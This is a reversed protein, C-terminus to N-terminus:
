ENSAYACRNEHEFKASLNSSGSIYGRRRPQGGLPYVTEDLSFAVGTPAHPIFGTIDLILAAKPRM